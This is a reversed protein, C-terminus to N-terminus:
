NKSKNSNLFIVLGLAGLALAGGGVAIETKHEGFFSSFDNVIARAKALGGTKDAEIAEVSKGFGANAHYFANVSDRQNKFDNIGTSNYKALTAKPASKFANIFYQVAIKAGGEPTNVLGPTNIIDLGIQKAIRAYNAKFTLQNPGGGRYKYGDGPATNGYKKGIATKYGYIAEFFNYDNAKLATLQAETYDKVRDTFIERIRKNSTTGYGSEFKYVFNSEKAVIAAMAALSYVNDIGAMQAESLLAKLNAKQAASLKNPDTM